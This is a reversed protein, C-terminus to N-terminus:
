VVLQKEILEMPLESHKGRTLIRLNRVENEKAVFYGLVPRINRKFEHTMGMAELVLARRLAVRKETADDTEPVALAKNGGGPILEMKVETKEARLKNLTNITDIEKEIYNQLEDEANGLVNAYYFKDLEDELKSLGGKNDRLISYYPTRNLMGVAEEVTQAKEVINKLFDGELNGAVVFGNIIEENSEGAFKGRLIMKVNWLDWKTLYLKVQDKSIGIAFKLIRSFTNELNKSLGYEILNIGSYKAGLEDIERKYETEGLFRAIEDLSMKMLKHYDEKKLLRSKMVRVRTNTYPYGTSRGTKISRKALENRKALREKLSTM